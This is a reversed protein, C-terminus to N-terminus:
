IAGNAMFLYAAMSAGVVAGVIVAVVVDSKSLHKEEFNFDVMPIESNIQAQSLIVDPRSIHEASNKEVHSRKNGNWTNKNALKMLRNVESPTPLPASMIAKKLEKENDAIFSAVRSGAYPLGKAWRRYRSILQNHIGFEREINMGSTKRKRMGVYLASIARATVMPTGIYFNDLPKVNSMQKAEEKHKIMEAWLQHKKERETLHMHLQSNRSNGHQNVLSPHKRSM